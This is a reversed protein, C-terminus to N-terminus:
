LESLRWPRVTRRVSAAGEDQALTSARSRTRTPPPAGDSPVVAQAAATATRATAHGLPTTPKRLPVVEKPLTKMAPTRSRSRTAAPRSSTPKEHEKAEEEDADADAKPQRGRPAAAPRSM